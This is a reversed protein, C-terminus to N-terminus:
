EEAKLKLIEKKGPAPYLCEVRNRVVSIFNVVRVRFPAVRFCLSCALEHLKIKSVKGGSSLVCNESSKETKGGNTAISAKSCTFFEPLDIFFNVLASTTIFEFSLPRRIIFKTCSKCTYLLVSFLIM